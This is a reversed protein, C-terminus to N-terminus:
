HGVELRSLSTCHCILRAGFPHSVLFLLLSVSVGGVGGSSSDQTSVGCAEFEQAPWIVHGPLLPIWLNVPLSQISFQGAFSEALGGEEWQRVSQVSDKQRQQAKRM